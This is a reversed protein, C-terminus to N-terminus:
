TESPQQGFIYMQIKIELMLISLIISPSYFTQAESLIASSEKVKSFSLIGCWFMNHLSKGTVLDIKHSIYMYMFVASDYTRYDHARTTDTIVSSGLHIIWKWLAWSLIGHLVMYSSHNSHAVAWLTRRFSM